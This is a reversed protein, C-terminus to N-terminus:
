NQSEKNKLKLLIDLFILAVGINIYVDALNFVYQWIGRFDLMDVVYGRFIRDIMNGIAGSIIVMYAIREIVEIKKFNKFFYIIIGIIAITTAISIANIKGQFVGFAIGRNQVYTIHFFNSIIEITDGVFFNNEIQIKTLQDLLVLGVIGILYYIM